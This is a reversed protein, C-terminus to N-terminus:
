IGLRIFLALVSGDYQKFVTYNSMIREETSLSKNVYSQSTSSLCPKYDFEYHGVCSRIVSLLM